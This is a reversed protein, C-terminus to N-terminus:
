QGSAKLSRILDRVSINEEDFGRIDSNGILDPGREGDLNNALSIGGGCQYCEFTTRGELYWDEERGLLILSERCLRCRLVTLDSCLVYRESESDSQVAGRERKEGSPLWRWTSAITKSSPLIQM